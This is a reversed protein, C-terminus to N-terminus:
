PPGEEASGGLLERLRRLARLYRMSAAPETLELLQAVDQNSLHEYHRLIIVERDRDELDDLALALRAEFEQRVAHTAPTVNTSSLQDLLAISSDMWSQPAQLSQERDVSRRLAQRHRRHADIIRDQALHRLWLHFPMKPEKLYAQLRRSAELFAEQVIDSADVRKAVARDLRADVIRRLAARHRGLLEDIAGDAGNRARDLLDNTEETTPWPSM